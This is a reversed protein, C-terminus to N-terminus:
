SKSNRKPTKRKGALYKKLSFTKGTRAQTAGAAIAKVERKKGLIDIMELLSTYEEVSMIILPEKGNRIDLFCDHM